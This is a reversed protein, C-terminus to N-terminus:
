VVPIWFFLNPFVGLNHMAEETESSCSNGNCNHQEKKRESNAPGRQANKNQFLFQQQDWFVICMYINASPRQQPNSIRALPSAQQIMMGLTQDGLWYISCTAVLLPDSMAPSNALTQM